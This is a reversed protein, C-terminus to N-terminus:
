GAGCYFKRELSLGHRFRLGAQFGNVLAFWLRVSSVCRPKCGNAAFPGLGPTPVANFKMRVISIQIAFMFM